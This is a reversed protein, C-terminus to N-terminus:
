LYSVIALGKVPFQTSSGYGRKVAYDDSKSRLFKKGRYLRSRITGRACGVFRAIEENRLGDIDSLIVVIRYEETLSSVAGSVAVDLLLDPTRICAAKRKFLPDDPDGVSNPRNNGSIWM